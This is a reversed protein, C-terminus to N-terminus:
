FGLVSDQAEILARVGERDLLTVPILLDAASLGRAALSDTDAYVAHIDYLELGKFLPSADKVAICDGGQNALLQLVGDDIFLLSVQQDFAAAVMAADLSERGATTGFPGRRNVFLIRRSM